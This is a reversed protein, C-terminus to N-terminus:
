IAMEMEIKAHSQYDILTFSEFSLDKIDTVNTDTIFLLPFPNPSREIQIKLPEIHNQYIHTDGTVYILRKPKLNTLHALIITLLSYSAINFPVGLAVDASRQCVQCELGDDEDVYFQALIHCPPLAMKKLDSVNWASLIIRRSTPNTQLLSIIEAIQDVGEKSRTDCGSYEQGWFRWQFGYVPGLDGEKLDFLGQKDLFERSANGDWIHIGKQKLIEVNTEGRLMWLLEEVVGRYFTKKTTILPFSNNTLSFEMRYGFISKVGVGTRDIRDPRTQIIDKILSLYQKEEKNEKSIKFYSIKFNNEEDEEKVVCKETFGYKKEDEFFCDFVGGDFVGGDFVGGDFVGGDVDGVKNSIESKYIYRCKTDLIAQKYIKAGGIVFIKKLPFYKGAELLANEFSSVFTIGEIIEDSRNIVICVRDRLPQKNLSLFTNYGMIVVSHLTTDKFYKTEKKLNWVMKNQFGIGNNKAWCAVIINFFM